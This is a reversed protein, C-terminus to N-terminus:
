GPPLREIGKAIRALAARWHEEPGSAAAEELAQRWVGMLLRGVGPGHEDGWREIAERLVDHRAAPARESLMRAAHLEIAADFGVVLPSALSDPAVARAGAMRDLLRQEVETRVIDYLGAKSGFHHYLAGTTLGAARCLDGVPVGEYGAAGFRVMAEEVLRARPTGAIPIWSRM